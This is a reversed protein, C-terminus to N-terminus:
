HSVNTAGELNQLMHETDTDLLRDEGKLIVYAAGSNGYQMMYVRHWNHGLKVMYRTPVKPGYGTLSRSRPTETIKAGTVLTGDLYEVDSM